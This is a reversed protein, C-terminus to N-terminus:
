NFKFKIPAHEILKTSSMNEISRDTLNKSRAQEVVLQGLQESIHDLKYALFANGSLSIALLALVIKINLINRIAKCM